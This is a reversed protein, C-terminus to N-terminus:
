GGTRHETLYRSAIRALPHNSEGADARLKSLLDSLLGWAAHGIPVQWHDALERLAEHEDPRVMIKVGCTRKNRLAVQPRGGYNTTM